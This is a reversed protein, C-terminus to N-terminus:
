RKNNPDSATWTPRFFYHHNRTRGLSCRRPHFVETVSNTDGQWGVFQIAESTRFRSIKRTIRAQQPRHCDHHNVDATFPEGRRSYSSSAMDSHISIVHEFQNDSLFVKPVKLIRLAPLGTSFYHVVLSIISNYLIDSKCQVLFKQLPTSM